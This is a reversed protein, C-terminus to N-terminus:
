FLTNPFFNGQRLHSTWKIGSNPNVTETDLKNPFFDSMNIEALWIIESLAEERCITSDVSDFLEM